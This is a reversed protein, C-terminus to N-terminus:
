RPQLRFFRLAGDLPLVQSARGGVVVPSDLWPRWFEPSISDSFYLSWGGEPWSLELRTASLTVEPTPPVPAVVELADATWVTGLANTARARFVYRQGQELGVVEQVFAGASRVGLDLTREWAVENTGADVPGYMLSVRVPPVNSLQLEGSIRVTGSGVLEASKLEPRFRARENALFLSAVDAAAFFRNYLRVDSLAGDFYSANANSRGLKFNASSVPGRTYSLSAALLGNTYLRAQRDNFTLAVHQWENLRIPVAPEWFRDDLIVKLRRNDLGWGSGYQGPVDTDFVSEIFAVDDSTRPRIWAALTLTGANAVPTQVYGSTGDITLAGDQWTAGGVVSGHRNQGSFDEVLTGQTANLRYWALLDPDAPPPAALQVMETPTLARQYIRISDLRGRFFNGSRGRGLYNEQPTSATNPALLQDPKLTFPGTAVIQGDVWLKAVSDQLTFAVHHWRLPALPAASISEVLSDRQARLTLLGASSRPTLSMSREAGGTFEVVRQEDEGGDWYVWGAWTMEALDSVTRELGVFNTGTLQLVGRRGEWLAEWGPNGRLLGDTAGYLDRALLAHAEAFEYAVFLGPPASKSAITETSLGGWEWGFHFGNTIQNGVVCDGDLVSDGGVWSTDNRWLTTVGKVTAQNTVTANEILHAHGGVRARGSVRANGSLTASDRVKAFNQVRASDRIWAQGGVIADDLVRATDTVRAFDEIRARGRVQASNLVRANPGIFASADVVASRSKWGGGNAHQILGTTEHRTEKPVAGTVQIEYPFRAKAPHSAYPQQSDLQLAPIFQGPTAAVSLFLRSEGAELVISQDGANWLPSYRAKGTSSVAVLCARWDALREPQPLGRFRVTVTRGSGTGEPVLEHLAYAGQMPASEPPVEWWEPQDARRRLESFQLRETLRPDQTNLAARLYQQQSYDWTVNRRVYYGLLDKVGVQPALRGLTDYLYEGPLSEQWVRASFSRGDASPRLEPLDDPNEDLYVFLPWHDYYHVGHGHFLQATRPFASGPASWASTNPDFHRYFSTLWRERGYNAHAEWWPGVAPNDLFGRGQHMQFVHMAEHPVVWSPPDVRLGDPTINLRGFDGEDGGAWYGGYWTTINVKYKQGDRKSATWSEAPERYGLAKVYLQWVEELNRLTGRPLNARWASQSAVQNDWLFRFHKSEMDLTVRGQDNLAGPAPNSTSYRPRYVNGETDGTRVDDIALTQGAAGGTLTLRLDTLTGRWRPELGVDWRLTHWQGDQPLQDATLAWRRTAAFGTQAVLGSNAVGYEVELSGAYEAPLRLRIEVLDHFGLDLDPGNLLATRQVRVVEGTFQATLVGAGVQVAPAGSVQWGQLDGETNWDGGSWFEALPASPDLELRVPSQALGSGLPVVLGLWALLSLLRFM